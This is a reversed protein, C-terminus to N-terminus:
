RELLIMTDPGFSDTRIRRWRGAEEIPPSPLGAFPAAGEPGLLVPAYFLTLRDVLRAALLASAIRAGGEVFLSEIGEARLARLGDALGSARIVRLGHSELVKEAAADAEPETVVWVPSERATGALRGATSLRLSRDFVIRVPPRRPRVAGRVTLLPDDVMATGIGVAIADHRARLRHVEDRAAESTIWTSRGNVDAVRGDLSLALKLEVWPHAQEESGHVHFFPANLDRARQEEVGALVEIGAAAVQGAGGRAVHHPDPSAYVLRAIGAAVIADSCPPTKGHHSCPELTVYLTAGRAREGAATLAEVEAHAAGFETHWGEGVVQGDRVVVAGVMPNPSVRGWGREALRLARLM